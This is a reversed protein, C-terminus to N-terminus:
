RGENKGDKKLFPFHGVRHKLVELYEVLVAKRASVTVEDVGLLFGDVFTEAESDVLIAFHSRVFAQEAPLDHLVISGVPVVRIEDIRAIASCRGAYEVVTFM